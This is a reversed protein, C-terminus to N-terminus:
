HYSVALKNLSIYNEGYAEEVRCKLVGWGNGHSHGGTPGEEVTVSCGFSELLRQVEGRTIQCTDVSHLVYQQAKWNFLNAFWGKFEGVASPTQSPAPIYTSNRQYSTTTSADSSHIKTPSSTHM